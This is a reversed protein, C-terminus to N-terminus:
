REGRPLVSTVEGFWFKASTSSVVRGNREHNTRVGRGLGLGPDPDPGPTPM